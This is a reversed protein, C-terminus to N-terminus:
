PYNSDDTFDSNVDVLAMDDNDDDAKHESSADPSSVNHCVKM